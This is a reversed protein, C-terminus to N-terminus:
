GKARWAGEFGRQLSDILRTRRRGSANRPTGLRRWGNDCGTAPVLVRWNWRDVYLLRRDGRLGRSASQKEHMCVSKHPADAPDSPCDGPWLTLVILHLTPEKYPLFPKVRHCIADPVLSCQHITLTM